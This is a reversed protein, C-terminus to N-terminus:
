QTVEERAVSAVCWPVARTPAAATTFAERRLQTARGVSRVSAFAGGDGAVATSTRVCRVLSLSALDPRPLASSAASGAALRPWLACVALAVVGLACAALPVLRRLRLVRRPAARERLSALDARLSAFASLCEPHALLWDRATADALPDVGRDLLAQLFPPLERTM